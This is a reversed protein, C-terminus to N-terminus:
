KVILGATVTATFHWLAWPLYILLLTEVSVLINCSSVALLVNPMNKNTGCCCSSVTCDKSFYLSASSQRSLIDCCPLSVIEFATHTTEFYLLSITHSHIGLLNDSLFLQTFIINLSFSVPVLSLTLHFVDSLLPSHSASSHPPLLSLSLPSINITHLSAGTCASCIM